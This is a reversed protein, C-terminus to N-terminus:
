HTVALAQLGGTMTNQMILASNPVQAMNGSSDVTFATVEVDCHFCNQDTTIMWVFAGAPDFVAWSSMPTSPDNSLHMLAGTSPDISYMGCTAAFLFKGSAPSTLNNGYCGPAFPSGPLSSLAGTKPDISYGVIGTSPSTSNTTTVTEYLFGTSPAVVAFAAGSSGGFPSGPVPTLAGTTSDISFAAVGGSSAAYLYKDDQSVALRNSGVFFQLGSKPATFPSGAVPSLQGTGAQITYAFLQSGAYAYVFKGLQDIAIADFNQSPAVPFNSMQALNGTQRDIRFGYLGPAAAEYLFNGSPDIASNLAWPNDGNALTPVPTTLKAVTLTGNSNITTPIPNAGPIQTAILFRASNTEGAAGVGAAYGGATVGSSGGSGGSTGSSGSTGSTGSTGNSTSGTMSGLGGGCSAGVAIVFIIAAVELIHPKKSDYM